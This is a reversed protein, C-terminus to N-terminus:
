MIRYHAKSKVARKTCLIKSRENFLQLSQSTCYADIRIGSERILHSLIVLSRLVSCFVNLFKGLLSPQVNGASAATCCRRMDLRHSLCKLTNGWPHIRLLSGLSLQLVHVQATKLAHLYVLLLAVKHIHTLTCIHCSTCLKCSKDTLLIICLRCINGALLNLSASCNNVYIHVICHEVSRLLHGCEQPIDGIVRINCTNREHYIGRVPLCDKCSQM